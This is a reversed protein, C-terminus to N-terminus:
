KHEMTLQNIIRNRCVGKGRVEGDGVFSSSPKPLKLFYESRLFNLFLLVMECVVAISLREWFM